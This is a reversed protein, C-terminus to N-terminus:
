VHGLVELAKRLRPSADQVEIAAAILEKLALRKLAARNRGDENHCKICAHNALYRRGALEPHRPCEKAYVSKVAAGGIGGLRLLRRWRARGFRIRSNHEHNKETSSPTSNM